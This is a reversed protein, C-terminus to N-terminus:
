LPSGINFIPLYIAVAVLLFITIHTFLDVLFILNFAQQVDEPMNRQLTVISAMVCEYLPLLWLLPHYQSVLVTLWPTQAGLSAFVPQVSRIAITSVLACILVFLCLLWYKKRLKPSTRLSPQSPPTSLQPSSM